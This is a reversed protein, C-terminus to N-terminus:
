PEDVFDLANDGARRAQGARRELLQLRRQEAGVEAHGHGLLDHGRHLPSVLGLAAAARVHEGDGLGLHLLAERGAVGRQAAGRVAQRHHRHDADVAGALGGGAGLEGM